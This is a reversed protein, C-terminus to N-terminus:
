AEGRRGSSGDYLLFRKNKVINKMLRVYLLVLVLIYFWAIVPIEPRLVGGELGDRINIYFDQLSITGYNGKKAWNDKFAKLEPSSIERVIGEAEISGNEFIQKSQKYDTLLIVSMEGVRGRCIYGTLRDFLDRQEAENQAMYSILNNGDKDKEKLELELTGTYFAKSINLRVPSGPPLQELEDAKTVLPAEPPDVMQNMYTWVPMQVHKNWTIALLTHLVLILALSMWKMLLLHGFRQLTKAPSHKGWERQIQRMQSRRGKNSKPLRQIFGDIKALNIVAEMDNERLELMRTYFRRAQDPEKLRMCCQGSLSLVEPDDPRLRRLRDLEERAEELHDMQLLFGTRIMRMELDDPFIRLIDDCAPLAKEWDEVERYFEIQLRLIQTDKDFIERAKELAWRADEMKHNQMALAFDERYLLYAEPDDVNEAALLDAYGLKAALSGRVMYNSIKPYEERFGAPDLGMKEKIGFTGDLLVWVEGSLFYHDELYDLVEDTLRGQSGLRWLVNNNLLETWRSLDFRSTFDQYLQDLEEMFEEVLEVPTKEPLLDEPEWHLKRLARSLPPTLADEEAESGQDADEETDEEDDEVFGISAEVASFGQKVLKMAEDFAERLRQYGEPDDEPHHKKLMRAYARRIQKEDETPPLDLITWINM